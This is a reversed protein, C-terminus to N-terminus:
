KPEHNKEKKDNDHDDMLGQTANKFERLTKGAARGLEPLKKPGFVVLAAAAIFVASGAGIM